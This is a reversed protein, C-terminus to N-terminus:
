KPVIRIIDAAKTLADGLFGPMWVGLVLLAGLPLAVLGAEVLSGKVPAAAGEEPSGWMLPIARSLIGVFAVSLGALFLVLATFAHADVSAKLTQFESMFVGFPAVGILVLLSLFIGVGWIKSIKFAGNLRRLEHTGQIQGLRGAAFFSVSKSMSHNLTHFLAAFVGLGGFGLGLTIIGIHEVSCYALLRKLDKQFVIFAAAIIISVVGMVRLLSNTWDGAGTSATVLPIYRMICYLAANIMFGSFLASLPAPAQSHADPLWTHMPAMGAKTGYGVLLFIFAAKMFLPDLLAAHDRLGTWLLAQHGSLGPIHRTSAAALLTGMFAFAVGVSCIILYKWMAELSSRNEHICILFATLLTTAEIGVWMIGLNNSCLVLTMSAYSACWLAGFLRVQKLTLKNRRIEDRMYVVAYVTSMVFVIVMVALNYASLADLYLWTSLASIAGYRATQVIALCGLTAAGVIGTTMSTLAAKASRMLICLAGAVAPLAIMACLLLTHKDHM